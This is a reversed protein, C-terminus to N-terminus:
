ASPAVGGDEVHGRWAHRLESVSVSAVEDGERGTLRLQGDDTVAGVCAVAHNALLEEFAAAYEPAVAVVFRGLSESFAATADNPLTTAGPVAGLDLTLGLLGGIAMDAAAVALGGESCDQCARVLGAAIATHLARYRALPREPPAPVNAGITAHRRYHSSGGLEDRTTGVVYLRDGPQKLDSTVTHAVDPVIALASILITGPIAQKQGDAGTYENNLSDKGSVYPARFAVAGDHCGRACRVLGGLRDPKNPNGWCFNDLLAVYDPDAGVAVVNRMAEDVAAWAMAYPDIEGYFPNVGVSLAVGRAGTASRQFAEQPVLVAAGSPGDNRAGVFPKVVTGGQVEHDYRRVVEEKSRTEPMALLALLEAGLDDTLAAGPEALAPATWTADMKRRPIGGHLFDMSLRSIREGQYHLRLEGDGTYSGLDTVEVDLDHGIQVVRRVHEPPVALVMREQAESLWIEWPQLGAYKLPVRELHVEAGLKEGMEGIASSLGGAGCDTIASYLGEDRAMLVAELSQKENIPHGIQVASGAVEGTTHDMEMSSFTAGRLGDRGTRGGIVIIRDGPQPDRPHSGRPLVGVCGCYVLPNATYGPAYVIAGSVTPIGMKNGYDEIGHIVGDAIRRPHLLGEPLEDFPLDMPGFCLVDTNAIPRASVGIVDRVVGGVGTNAGGFPELASPHNHTELKFALDLEDDFAVIGANDVFASHVWPKAARDTAGRIYTRLLSDIIETSILRGDPGREEHTILARFTKHVCHESWTQALMELEIDTPEEGRERYHDRIATMEERNLSLRREQSIADLEEDSAERLPIREITLDAVQDLVFTPEIAQGIAYVQIVENALLRRALRETDEADIDGVIEYRLGTTAAALGEIGALAAGHLLAEAEPDTVGPRLAVEIVLGEEEVPPTDGLIQWRADQVVRDTLLVDVVTRLAAESLEGDLFYLDTVRVGEVGAIDLAKAQEALRLGRADPQGPRPFVDVRYIM